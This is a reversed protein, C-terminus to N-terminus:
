KRISQIIDRIKRATEVDCGYQKQCVSLIYDPVCGYVNNAVEIHSTSLVISRLTKDSIDTVEEVVKLVKVDEPSFYETGIHNAPYFNTEFWTKTPNEDKDYYNAKALKKNFDVFQSYDIKVALVDHRFDLDISLVKGRMGEDPDCETKEVEKTFEIVKGVLSNWYSENKM